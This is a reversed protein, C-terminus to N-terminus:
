GSSEEADEAIDKYDEFMFPRSDIQNGICRKIEEDTLTDVFTDKPNKDKWIKILQEVKVEEGEPAYFGPFLKNYRECDEIFKQRDEELWLNLKDKGKSSHCNM